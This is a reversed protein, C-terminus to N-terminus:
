TTDMKISDTHKHYATDAIHNYKYHAPQARLDKQLPRYHFAIAPPEVANQLALSYTGQINNLYM